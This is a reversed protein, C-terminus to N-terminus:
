QASLFELTPSSILISGADAQLGGGSVYDMPTVRLVLVVDGPDGAAALNLSAADVSLRTWGEVSEDGSWGDGRTYAKIATSGGQPPSIELVIGTARYRSAAGATPDDRVWISFRYDGSSLTYSETPDTYMPLTLVHGLAMQVRPLIDTRVLRLDDIYAEQVVGEGGITGFSLYHHANSMRALSAYDTIGSTPFSGSGDASFPWTRVALDDTRFEFIVQGAAARFSFRALYSAGLLFGDAAGWADDTLAFDLRAEASYTKYYRTKGNIANANSSDVVAHLSGADGAPTWLSWGNVLDGSAQPGVVEGEFDGGPLLSKSELRYVEAGAVPPDIALESASEFGLYLASAPGLAGLAPDLSWDSGFSRDAVLNVLTGDTNVYEPFWPGQTCAAVLLVGLVLAHKAPHPTASV